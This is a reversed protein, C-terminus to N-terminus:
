AVKRRRIVSKATMPAKAIAYDRILLEAPIDWAEVIARIMPLTLARRHSLVESARNAGILAALDSQSRDNMDMEAKLIDVPDVDGPRIHEYDAVVMGWLELGAEENTGPAANWLRAIEAMALAYDEDNRIPKPTM